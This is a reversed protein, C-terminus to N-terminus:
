FQFVAETTEGAKIMLVREQTEVDPEEGGSFGYSTVEVDWEGPALGELSAVGNHAGADRTSSGEGEVERSLYLSAFEVPAGGSSLVQVRLAGGRELTVEFGSRLEGRALAGVSQRAPQYPNKEVSLELEEGSLLGKLQFSGDQNTM